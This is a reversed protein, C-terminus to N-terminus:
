RGGWLRAVSQVTDDLNSVDADFCDGATATVIDHLGADTCRVEGITIVIVRVGRGAVDAKAAAAPIGSATDSGDTLVVVANVPTQDGPALRNVGDIVTRFLPTNGAAPVAALASQAAALRGPDPPGIPVKEIHGRPPFTDSFFWLGFEDGQGLTRLGAGVVRAALASRTGGPGIVSMSGSTDLAFLVRGRRHAVDYAAAVKNWREARIPEAAPVVDPDIGSDVTLPAATAFPHPGAPRLGTSVIAKKGEESRLWAGFATAAQAQPPGSWALRVFQLDQYSTDTPYLAVLQGDAQPRVTGTSCSAGLPDGQNFRIVQQESAIIATQALTPGAAGASTGAGLQRQRCLLGPTDSIPFKDRDLSSEIRREIEEAALQTRDAPGAEVAPDYLLVTGLLGLESTEPDARVIGRDQETLRSFLDTWSGEPLGRAVTRPVALVMPSLAVPVREVIPSPGDAAAEIADLEHSTSALWVDPRPGIERLAGSTDSWSDITKLHERIETPSGPYVYISATPCGYNDDETWREYVSALQRATTITEPGAVMRLQTAPPCGLVKWSQGRAYEWAPQVSVALVAVLVVFGVVRPQGLWRLVSRLPFRDGRGLEDPPAPAVTVYATLSAGVITQVWHLLTEPPNPTIAVLVVGLVALTFRTWASRLAARVADNIQGRSVV